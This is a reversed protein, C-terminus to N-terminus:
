EWRLRPWTLSQRAHRQVYVTLFEVSLTSRVGDLLHVGDGIVVSQAIHINVKDERSRGFDRTMM